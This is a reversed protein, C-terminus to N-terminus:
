SKRRHIMEFMATFRTLLPLDSHEMVTGSRLSTQSKCMKCRWIQKGSHWYHDACKCRKYEIGMSERKSKWFSRCTSEDPFAQHFDKPTM